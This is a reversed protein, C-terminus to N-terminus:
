GYGDDMRKRILSGLSHEEGEKDVVSLAQRRWYLTEEPSTCLTVKGRINWHIQYVTACTLGLCTSTVPDLHRFLQLHLEPPMTMFTIGKAQDALFHWGM